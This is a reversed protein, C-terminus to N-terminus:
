VSPQTDKAGREGPSLFVPQSSNRNRIPEETATSRTTGKRQGLHAIKRAVGIYLNTVHRGTKEDPFYNVEFAKRVHQTERKVSSLESVLQSFSIVSFLGM